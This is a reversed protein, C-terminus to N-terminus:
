KKCNHSAEVDACSDEWFEIDGDEGVAGRKVLRGRERMLDEVTVKRDGFINLHDSIIHRNRCNPCTILVSGRYYGQRSIMHTSRKDCPICTFTLRLHPETEIRHSPTPPTNKDSSPSLVPPKPITHNLRASLPPSTAASLPPLTRMTTLSPRSFGTLQHRVM